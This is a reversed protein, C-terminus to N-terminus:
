FSAIRSGAAGAEEAARLAAVAAGRSVPGVTVKHLTHGGISVPSVAVSGHAALQAALRRANSIDRYSGAQVFVTGPSAAPRAGPTQPTVARGALSRPSAAAQWSSEAAAPEFPLTAPKPMAAPAPGLSADYPIAEPAVEASVPVM